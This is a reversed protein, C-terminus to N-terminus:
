GVPIWPVFSPVGASVAGTGADSGRRHVWVVALIPFGILVIFLLLVIWPFGKPKTELNPSLEANHAALLARDQWDWYQHWSEFRAMGRSGPIFPPANSSPVFPKPEIAVVEREQLSGPAVELAELVRGEGFLPLRHAVLRRLAGSPKEDLMAALMRVPKKPLSLSVRADGPGPDDRLPSPHRFFEGLWSRVTSSDLRAAWQGPVRLSFTEMAKM